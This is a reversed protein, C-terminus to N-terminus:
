VCDDSPSTRASASERSRMLASSNFWTGIYRVPKDPHLRGMIDMYKMAIPKISPKEAVEVVQVGHSKLTNQRSLFLVWRLNPNSCLAGLYM